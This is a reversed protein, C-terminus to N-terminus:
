LKVNAGSGSSRPCSASQAHEFFVISVRVERYWNCVSELGYLTGDGPRITDRTM